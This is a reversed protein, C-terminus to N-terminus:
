SYKESALTKIVHPLLSVDVSSVILHLHIQVFYHM